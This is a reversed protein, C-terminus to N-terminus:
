PVITPCCLQIISVVDVCMDNKECLGNDHDIQPQEPEGWNYAQPLLDM